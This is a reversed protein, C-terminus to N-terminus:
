RVGEVARPVRVSHEVTAPTPVWLAISLLAWCVGWGSLVLFNPGGSAAFVPFLVVFPYLGCVLPVVGRLGRWRRARLVGVGALVMGIGVLVTAAPFMVQEALDLDVRLVVQAVASVAWGAGVAGLGIRAPLGPGTAGSRALGILGVVLTLYAVAIVSTRFAFGPEGPQVRDVTEVVGGAIQLVAGVFGAVSAGRVLRNIDRM